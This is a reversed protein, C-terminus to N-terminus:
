SIVISTLFDLFLGLIEKFGINISCLDRYVAGYMM